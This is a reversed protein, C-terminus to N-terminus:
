GQVVGQWAGAVHCMEHALTSRLREMDILVKRSLEIRCPVRRHHRPHPHLPACAAAILTWPIDPEVRFSDGRPPNGFPQTRTVVGSVPQLRTADLARWVLHAAPPM